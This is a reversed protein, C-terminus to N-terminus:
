RFANYIRILCKRINFLQFKRGLSNRLATYYKDGLRYDQFRTMSNKVLLNRFLVLDCALTGKNSFGIVYDYFRM